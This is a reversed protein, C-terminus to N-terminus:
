IPKKAIQFVDIKKWKVGGYGYSKVELHKVRKWKIKRLINPLDSYM